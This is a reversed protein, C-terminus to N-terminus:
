CPILPPDNTHDIAVQHGTQIVTTALV